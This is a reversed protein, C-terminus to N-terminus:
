TVELQADEYVRTLLTYHHDASHHHRVDRQAQRGLREALGPDRVLRDMARTLDATRDADVVLGNQEHRV